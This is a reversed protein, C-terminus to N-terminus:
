IIPKKTVFAYKELYLIYSKCINLIWYKIEPQKYVKTIIACQNKIPRRILNIDLSPSVQVLMLAGAFAISFANVLFIHNYKMGKKSNVM